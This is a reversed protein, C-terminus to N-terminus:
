ALQTWLDHKTCFREVQDLDVDADEARATALGAVWGDTGPRDASLIRSGSTSLVAATGRTSSV